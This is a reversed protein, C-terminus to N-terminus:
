RVGVGHLLTLLESEASRQGSWSSLPDDPIIWRLHGDPGLIFMYDSHVSMKDTPRMSVGIGYSNWVKRMTALDPSTVFYFNKVNGLDHLSIFRNVNATTEHYINAAVAVIDIKAGPSLHSRVDALQAGLLPCDTWCMPDLFTLLTYRGAHEGLTYRHGHQDILTFRPAVTNASSAPGNRAVFLTTEAGAVSALGMSVVSFIIMASACAALVAGSSSRFERPLRRPLPSESARKPSACWTLTALPILSNLDTALGGFIAGDQASLWFVVAGIVVVLVPWRLGRTSALWLGVACVAMWIIVVLNFGGGMTGAITGVEKAFWALVHPQATQTMTTTKTTLANSNGGHWFNADPLSQLVIGAGFLVSLGRLTYRSFREPFNTVPLALWVGAVVYFLTAGPWGFLLSGGPQFIGGAGNGILWIMAAWGVSVAAAIRGLTANSVILLIGIGVQIWATGVALAIPHSNWIGVGDYMLSHLWGPTGSAMPAVVNNALGLPMSAQFQLIGDILWIAGFAMRLYTRNRPENLGQASLNFTGVKRVIAAVIFLTLFIAIIWNVATVYVNHHFMDVILVNTLTLGSSNMPM